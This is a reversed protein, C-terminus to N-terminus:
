KRKKQPPLFLKVDIDALKEIVKINIERINISMM